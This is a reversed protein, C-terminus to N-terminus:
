RPFPVAIPEPQEGSAGDPANGDRNSGWCYVTGATARACVFRGGVVLQEVSPLEPIRVAEFSTGAPQPGLQGWRGDGWCFVAGSADLACAVGDDGSGEADLQRVEALAGISPSVVPTLGADETADFCRVTRASTLGCVFDRGQRGFMSSAQVFHAGPASRLLRTKVTRQEGPRSPAGACVLQGADTVGCQRDRALQRTRVHWRALPSDQEPARRKWTEEECWWGSKGRVCLPQIRRESRTDPRGVDAPSVELAPEPTAVAAPALEGRHRVPRRRSGWCSLAGSRQIVCVQLRGGRMSIADTIGPVLLPERHVYLASQGLQGSEAAGWCRVAGDTVACAHRAGLAVRSSLAPVAHTLPNPDGECRLPQRPSERFCIGGDYAALMSAPPRGAEPPGSLLDKRDSLSWAVDSECRIGNWAGSFLGCLRRGDYSATALSTAGALAPIEFSAKEGM